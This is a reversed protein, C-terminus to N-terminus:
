GQSRSREASGGAHAPEIPRLLAIEFSQMFESGESAILVCDNRSLITRGIKMTLVGRDPDVNSNSVKTLAGPSNLVPFSLWM